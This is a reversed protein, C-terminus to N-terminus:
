VIREVAGIKTTVEGVLEKWARDLDALLRAQREAFQPVPPYGVTGTNPPIYNEMFTAAEDVGDLVVADQYELEGKWCTRYAVAVVVKGGKTKYVNVQHWRHCEKGAVIRSSASTIEEGEFALPRQGTRELTMEEMKVAREDEAQQAGLDARPHFMRVWDTQVDEEL